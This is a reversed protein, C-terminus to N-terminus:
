QTLRRQSVNGSCIRSSIRVEMAALLAVAGITADSTAESPSQLRENIMAMTKAKRLLARHQNPRNDHIELQVAAFDTVAQFLVPDTMIMPLWLARFPNAGHLDVPLCGRAM